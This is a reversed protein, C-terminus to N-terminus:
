FKPNDMLFSTEGFDDWLISKWFDIEVTDKYVRYIVIVMLFLVFKATIAVAM